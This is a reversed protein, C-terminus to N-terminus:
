FFFKYCIMFVSHTLMITITVPFFACMIGVVSTAISICIMFLICIALILQNHTMNNSEASVEEPFGTYSSVIMLIIFLVTMSVAGIM